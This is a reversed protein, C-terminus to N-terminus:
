NYVVQEVNRDPVVSIWIKGRNFEMENGSMDYFKTRAEREAKSWTVEVAKGDLFVIGTGSGIFRYELRLADDGAIGQENVFQVVLNKVKIQEGSERDSHPLPNGEADFGMTRMYLNSTEDYTFGASYAGRTWFDIAINTALPANEYGSRDNKFEWMDIEREGDWGLDFAKERLEKGNVYATHEIAVNLSNDRWFDGGGRGLSRVPWSEIAALAQPSWGIHMLMADGLEKVLVLYYERTSRVPGIKEPTDSLYFPLFRTIGGEAVIEYVLDANILGSHPRADTHNNIMVALPRKDASNEKEQLDIYEGNLPNLFKGANPDGLPSRDVIPSMFSSSRLGFYYVLIGGIALAAIVGMIMAKKNFPKKAKAPPMYAFEKPSSSNISDMLPM